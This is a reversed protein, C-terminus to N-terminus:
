TGGYVFIWSVCHFQHILSKEQQTVFITEIAINMYLSNRVSGIFKQFLNAIQSVAHADIQFKWGRFSKRHQGRLFCAGRNQRGHATHLLSDTSVPKGNPFTGGHLTMLTVSIQIVTDKCISHMNTIRGRM